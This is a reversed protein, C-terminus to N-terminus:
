CLFKRSAVSIKQEQDTINKLDTRKLVDYRYPYHSLLDDISYIGIKNFLLETKPGIGKVKSLKDM